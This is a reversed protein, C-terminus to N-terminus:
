VVETLPLWTVILPGANVAEHSAPVEPSEPRVTTVAADFGAYLPVTVAASPEVTVPSTQVIM